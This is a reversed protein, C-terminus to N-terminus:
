LLRIRQSHNPVEVIYREHFLEVLWAFLSIVYGTIEKRFPASRPFTESNIM